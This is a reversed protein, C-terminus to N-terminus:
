AGRARARLTAARAAWRSAAAEDGSAREVEAREALLTALRALNERGGVQAAVVELGVADILALDAGMLGRAAQDLEHRAQETRGDMRLAVIAAVARAFTEIARLVYDKQFSVV